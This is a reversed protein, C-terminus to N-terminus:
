GRVKELAEKLRQAVELSTPRDKVKYQRCWRMADVIAVLNPDKSNVIDDPLSPEKGKVIAKFAEEFSYKAFPNEEALLTYFISGMSFVDTKDTQLGDETYEEPARNTSGNHTTDITFPCIKPPSKSTLLRGRNFDNIKFVKTKPSYLFQSPKIDIHAVTAMGNHFLHMDAVGQAVQYAVDLLEDSKTTDELRDIWDELTSPSSEVLNSFACYSYMNLVYPSATTQEMILADKRHKDLDRPSFKIDYISTKLVFEARTDDELRVKWVDKFGGQALHEIRHDGARQRGMHLGVEHLMNCTPFAGTKDQWEAILPCGTSESDLRRRNKRYYRSSRIDGPEEPDPLKSTRTWTRNGLTFSSTTRYVDELIVTSRTTMRHDSRIDKGILFPLMSISLLIALLM